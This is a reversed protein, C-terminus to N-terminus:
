PAMEYNPDDAELASRTWLRMDKLEDVDCMRVSGDLFACVAKKDYRFDVYGYSMPDSNESWSSASAWKECIPSSNERTPPSVYSFGHIRNKGTGSGASAFALISGRMNAVRSICDADNLISGDSRVVGGVGYINMGLAPYASTVYDYMVSSGGAAKLIEKKNRNVYITGEFRDGLYPAIRYPYRQATHGSVFGGNPKPVPYASTGARYDMGPLYIGDNEQASLQLASVLARAANVERTKQASSMAKQAAGVCLVALVGTTGLVALLEILTFGRRSSLIGHNRSLFRSIVQM